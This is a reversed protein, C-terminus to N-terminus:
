VSPLWKRNREKLINESNQAKFARGSFPYEPFRGVLLGSFLELLLEVGSAEHIQFTERHVQQGHDKLHTRLM